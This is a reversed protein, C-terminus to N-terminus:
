QRLTSVKLLPAGTPMREAEASKQGVAMSTLLVDADTGGSGAWSRWRRGGVALISL